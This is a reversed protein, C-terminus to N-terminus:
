EKKLNHGLYAYFQAVMHSAVKGRPRVLYWPHRFPFGRVDLLCMKKAELELTASHQSIMSIGLNAMILQKISENSGVEMHLPPAIQNKEFLRQMAMRTGSGEERYIWTENELHAMTIQEQDRLPHHPGAAIILTDEYFPTIEYKASLPPQSMIVFDDLNDELRHLVDQRNCVNLHLTTTGGQQNRFDALLRPVFYNATSVLSVSLTGVAGGQMDQLALDTAKIEKHLRQAMGYVIKGAATPYIKKGIVELLKTHYHSEIQKILNSVAPQSMHLSKAASTIGMQDIVTSFVHLQHLTLRM